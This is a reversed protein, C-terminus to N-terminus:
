ADCVELDAVRRLPIVAVAAGPNAARQAQAWRAATTGGSVPWRSERGNRRRLVVLHDADTLPISPERFDESM